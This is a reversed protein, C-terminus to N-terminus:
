EGSPIIRLPTEQPLKIVLPDILKKVLIDKPIIIELKAGTIQKIEKIDIKNIWTTLIFDLSLASTTEAVVECSVKVLNM